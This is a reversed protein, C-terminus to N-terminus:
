ANSHYNVYINNFARHFATVQLIYAATDFFSADVSGCDVILTAM